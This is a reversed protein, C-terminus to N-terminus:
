EWMSLLGDIWGSIDKKAKAIHFLSFEGQPSARSHTDDSGNVEGICVLVTLSYYKCQRNSRRIIGWAADSLEKREEAEEREEMIRASELDSELSRTLEERGERSEPIVHCGCQGDIFRNRWEHELTVINAPTIKMMEEHMGYRSKLTLTIDVFKWGLFVLWAADRCAATPLNKRNILGFQATTEYSNSSSTM